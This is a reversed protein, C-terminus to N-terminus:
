KLSVIYDVIKQVDADPVRNIPMPIQNGKPVQAPPDEIARVLFDRDVTVISGDDLEIQSEYLGNWAPGVGVAGTPSHCAMCGYDRALGLGPLNSEDKDKGCAAIALSAGVAAVAVFATPAIRLLRRTITTHVVGEM